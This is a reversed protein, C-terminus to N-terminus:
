GADALSGERSSSYSLMLQCAELLTRISLTMHCAKSLKSCHEQRAANCALYLALVTPPAHLSLLLSQVLQLIDFMNNRILGM